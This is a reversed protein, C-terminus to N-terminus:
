LIYSLSLIEKSCAKKAIHHDRFSICILSTSHWIYVSLAHLDLLPSKLNLILHKSVLHNNLIKFSSPTRCFSRFSSPFTFFFPSPSLMLSSRHTPLTLFSVADRAKFIFIPNYFLFCYSFITLHCCTLSFSAFFNALSLRLASKASTHKKELLVM